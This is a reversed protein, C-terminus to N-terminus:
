LLLTIKGSKTLSTKFAQMSIMIIQCQTIWGHFKRRAIDLLKRKQNKDHKAQFKDYAQNFNSTGAEEKGVKIMEEAFMKLVENINMHYKFGYYTLLVWCKPLDCIM